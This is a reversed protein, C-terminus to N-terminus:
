AGFGTKRSSASKGEFSGFIVASLPLLYLTGDNSRASLLDDPLTAVHDIGTVTAASAGQAIAFSITIKAPLTWGDSGNTAGALELLRLLHKETM